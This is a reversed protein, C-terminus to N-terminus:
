VERGHRLKRREIVARMATEFRREVAEELGAIRLHDPLGYSSCERVAIGHATLLESAVEAARDMRLLLFPAVSPTFVLGLKSLVFALRNRDGLVLQRSHAIFVDEQMGAIVAAQAGSNV